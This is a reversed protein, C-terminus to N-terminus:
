SGGLGVTELGKPGHASEGDSAFFLNAAVKYGLTFEDIRIRGEFLHAIESDTTIFSKKLLNSFIGQFNILTDHVSHKFSATQGGVM